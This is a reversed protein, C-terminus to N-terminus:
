FRALNGGLLAELLAEDRITRRLWALFRLSARDHIGAELGPAFDLHVREPGWAALADAIRNSDAPVEVGLVLLPRIGRVRTSDPAPPIEAQLRPVHVLVREHSKGTAVAGEDWAVTGEVLLFCGSEALARRVDRAPLGGQQGVYAGAMGAARLPPVADPGLRELLDAGVVPVLSTVLDGAADDVGSFSSAAALAPEREATAAIRGLRRLIEDAETRGHDCRVIRGDIRGDGTLADMDASALMAADFPAFAVQLAEARINRERGLGDRLPLPHDAVAALLSMVQRGVSELVAASVGGPADEFDHYFRHDGRSWCGVAPIGIKAFPAYDSHEGGLEHSTLLGAATSDLGAVWTRYVPGLRDGGAIGTGGDGHGVMDLNIM